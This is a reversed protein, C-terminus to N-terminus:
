LRRETKREATHGFPDLPSGRLFRLRALLGFVKFVWPGFEKKRLHGTVPDRKALLPPALHSRLSDDGEFQAQRRERVAPRAYLRAVEYEDKYALLKAYGYAVATALATAGPVRQAEVAQVRRVLCEYREAYAANQYETLHEVRRAI